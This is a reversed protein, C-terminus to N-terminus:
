IVRRQWCLPLFHFLWGASLFGVPSWREAWMDGSRPVVIRNGLVNWCSGWTRTIFLLISVMAVFGQLTQVKCTEWGWRIDWKRTAELKWVNQIDKIDEFMDTKREGLSKQLHYNKSSGIQLDWLLWWKSSSMKGSRESWTFGEMGGFISKFNCDNGELFGEWHSKVNIKIHKM